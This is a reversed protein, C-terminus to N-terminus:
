RIPNNDFYLKGSDYAKQYTDKLKENNNRRNFVLNISSQFYPQFSEQNESCKNFYTNAFYHCLNIKEDTFIPDTTLISVCLAAIDEFPNGKTSEEFDLGIISKNIIFNRLHADGHITFEKNKSFLSHYTILWQTLQYLAQEKKSIFIQPDNIIDCVNKGQIYEMFIIQHKNDIEYLQPSLNKESLISLQQQEIRLQKKAYPHFWKVVQVKNNFNVLGVQNKKSLFQEIIQIQQFKTDLKLLENLDKHVHM